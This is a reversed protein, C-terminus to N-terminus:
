GRSARRANGARGGSLTEQWVDGAATGRISEPVAAPAPDTTPAGLESALPAPQSDGLFARSTTALLAVLYFFLTMGLLAKSVLGGLGGLGEEGDDGAADDRRRPPPPIARRKELSANPRGVVDVRETKAGRSELELEFRERERAIVDLPDSRETGALVGRRWVYPRNKKRENRRTANSASDPNSSDDDLGARRAELPTEVLDPFFDPLTYRFIERERVTIAVRRSAGGRRRSGGNRGRRERTFARADERPRDRTEAEADDAEAEARLSRRLEERLRENPDVPLSAAEDDGRAARRSPAGRRTRRPAAARAAAAARPPASVSDFRMRARETIRPPLYLQLRVDEVHSFAVSRKM